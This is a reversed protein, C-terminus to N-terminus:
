SQGKRTGHIVDKVQFHLSSSNANLKSLTRTNLHLYTSQGALVALCAVRALMCHKLVLSAADSSYVWAWAM